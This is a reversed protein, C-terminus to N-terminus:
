GRVVGQGASLRKFETGPRFKPAVTAPIQIPAGTRPDRGRRARRKVTDFTGFGMLQVPNGQAVESAIREMIAKLVRGVQAKPIAMEEAVAEVLETKNM